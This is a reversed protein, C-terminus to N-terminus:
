LGTTHDHTWAFGVPPDHSQRDRKYAVIDSSVPWTNVLTRLHNYPRAPEPQTTDWHYTGGAQCGATMFGVTVRPHADCQLPMSAPSM